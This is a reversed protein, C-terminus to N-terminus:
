HSMRDFNGILLGFGPGLSVLVGKITLFSGSFVYKNPADSSFISRTLNTILIFFDLGYFFSFLLLFIGGRMINNGKICTGTNMRRMKLVKKRTQIMTTLWLADKCNQVNVTYTYKCIKKILINKETLPM